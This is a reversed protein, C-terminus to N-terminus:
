QLFFFRKKKLNLSSVHIQQKALRPENNTNTRTNLYVSKKCIDLYEFAFPTHLEPQNLSPFHHHHSSKKLCAHKQRVYTNMM